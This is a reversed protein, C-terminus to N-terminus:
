GLITPSVQLAVEDGDLAVRIRGTVRTVVELQALTAGLGHNLVQRAFFVHVEIADM